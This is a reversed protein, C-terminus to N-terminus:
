LDGAWAVVHGARDTALRQDHGAPAVVDDPREEVAAGVPRVQHAPGVCPVRGREATWVVAPGEGAVPGQGAHRHTLAVARVVVVRLGTQAKRRDGLEVAVPAEDEASEGAGSWGEAIM